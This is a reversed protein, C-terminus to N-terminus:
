LCTLHCLQSRSSRRSNLPPILQADQALAFAPCFPFCSHDIDLLFDPLIFYTLSLLGLFALCILSSPSQSSPRWRPGMKLWALGRVAGSRLPVGVVQKQVAGVAEAISARVPYKRRLSLGAAKNLLYLMPMQKTLFDFNFILIGARRASIDREPDSVKGHTAQRVYKNKSTLYFSTPRSWEKM